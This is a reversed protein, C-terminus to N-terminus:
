NVVERFYFYYSVFRDVDTDDDDNNFDYKNSFLDLMNKRATLDVMSSNKSENYLVSNADIDDLFLYVYIKIIM